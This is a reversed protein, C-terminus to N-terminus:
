GSWANAQDGGLGATALEVRLAEAQPPDAAPAAM